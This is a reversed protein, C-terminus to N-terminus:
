FFYDIARSSNDISTYKITLREISKFQMTIILYQEDNENSEFEYATLYKTFNLGNGGRKMSADINDNDDMFSFLFHKVKEDTHLKICVGNIIYTPETPSSYYYFAISFELHKLSINSMEITLNKRPLTRNQYFHIVSLSKLCPFVNSILSLLNSSLICNNLELKVVTHNPTLDKNELNERLRSGSKISLAELHVCYKAIHELLSFYHFYQVNNLIINNFYQGTLQLLDLEQRESNSEKGNFKVSIVREDGNIKSADLTVMPLNGDDLTNFDMELLPYKLSETKFTSSCLSELICATKERTTIAHVLSIDIKSVYIFFRVAVDITFSVEDIIRNNGDEDDYSDSDVIEEDECLLDFKKLNPFKKMIYLMFIDSVIFRSVFYTNIKLSSVNHLPQIDDLKTLLNREGVKISNICIEKVPLLKNKQTLSEM